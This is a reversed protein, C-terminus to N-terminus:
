NFFHLGLALFRMYFTLLPLSFNIKLTLFHLEFASVRDCPEGVRNLDPPLVFASVSNIFETMRVSDGQIFLFM